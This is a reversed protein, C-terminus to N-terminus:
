QAIMQGNTGFKYYGEKLGCTNNSAVWLTKDCQMVGSGVNFFYINEGIKTLGKARVLNNYYFTQNNTGTVFGTKVLKGEADFAFFGAGPAILDNFKSIYVVTNVALTGNPNA